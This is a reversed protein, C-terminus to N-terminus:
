KVSNNMIINDYEYYYKGNIKYGEIRYELQTLNGKFMNIALPHNKFRNILKKHESIIEVWINDNKHYDCYKVLLKYFESYIQKEIGIM